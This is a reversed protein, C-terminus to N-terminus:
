AVELRKIHQQVNFGNLLRWRELDFPIGPLLHAWILRIINEHHLDDFFVTEVFVKTCIHAIADSRERYVLDWSEDPADTMDLAKLSAISEEVKRLVIVWPADPFQDHIQDYQMVLEPGAFGVRRPSVLLHEEFKRDHHCLTKDTTLLNALWASRCRPLGSIFFPRM